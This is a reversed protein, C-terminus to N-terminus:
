VIVKRKFQMNSCGVDTQHHHIIHYVSIEAMFAPSPEWNAFYGSKSLVSALLYRISGKLAEKNKQCLLLTCFM